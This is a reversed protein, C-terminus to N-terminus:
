CEPLGLWFNSLSSEHCFSTSTAAQSASMGLNYSIAKTASWSLYAFLHTEHRFKFIKSKPYKTDSMSDFLGSLVFCDLSTNLKMTSVDTGIDLKDGFRRLQRKCPGNECNRCITGIRGILKNVDM